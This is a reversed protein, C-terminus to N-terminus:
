VSADDGGQKRLKALAKRWRNTSVCTVAASWGRELRERMRDGAEVLERVAETIDATPTFPTHWAGRSFQIARPPEAGWDVEPRRVRLYVYETDNM